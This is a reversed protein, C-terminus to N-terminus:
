KLRGKAKLFYARINQESVEKGTARLADTIAKRDDDPIVIEQETTAEFLMVRNTGFLNGRVTVDSFLRDVEANREEPTLKRGLAREREFINMDLTILAQGARKAMPTGFRAEPNIGMESLRLNMRQRTNLIETQTAEPANILDAQLRTLEKFEADELKNRLALLNAQKLLQPNIRLNYYVETDTEIKGGGRLSDAYNRVQGIKDGPIAARLSAPLAAFNGGNADLRGYVAAMVEQQQRERDRLKSGLQALAESTADDRVRVNDGAVERVAQRVETESPIRNGFSGMVDDAIRASARLDTETAVKGELEVLRPAKITSRNRDIYQAAFEVDGADLASNVVASHVQDINDMQVALLADGTIGNRDAWLATNTAIRGISDNVKAQDRWNLAAQNAETAVAGKYVNDRYQDTERLVHRMLSDDFEAEAMAARRRFMDQQRTNPLGSAVREITKKFDGSYKTMFDPAVADAAKKSTFGTEPNMMLDTQQDRLQNFADEVRLEDLDASLRAFATVGRAVAEATEAAQTGVAALGRASPTAIRPVVQQRYFELKAM